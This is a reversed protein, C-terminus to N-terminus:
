PVRPDWIAGGLPDDDVVLTLCSPDRGAKSL